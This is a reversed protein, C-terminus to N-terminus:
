CSGGSSTTTSGLVSNCEEPADVFASCIAQKYTESNGYSYVSSSKVGNIILTPSGNAGADNSAQAEKQMLILGQADYCSKITSASIGSNTAAVEWCGGDSGCNTNVYTMFKWFKDLGYENLVCVERINQDAEPKGHLSNITEGSVSVIYHINWDVKDKLLEYVPLMTDEAKNGYPCFSMVYLEVKPKSTQPIEEPENNAPITTSSVSKGTILFPESGFFYKGDRSFYVPVLQDQYSVKVEFYDEKLIVSDLTVEGTGQLLESNIFEVATSGMKEESIANGTIGGNFSIVLLIVALVGLVITSIVWINKGGKKSDKINKSNNSTKIESTNENYMIYETYIWDKFVNQYKFM